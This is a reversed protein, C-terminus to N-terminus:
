VGHPPVGEAQRRFVGGELVFDVRGWPGVVVDRVHAGLELPHPETIIPCPFQGGAVRCVIAPFLQDKDLHILPPQDVAFLGQDVPARLALGDQGVLLHLRPGAPAAVALHFFPLEGSPEELDRGVGILEQLVAVLERAPGLANDRHLLVPDALTDPGIHYKGQFVACTGDGDERRALVGEEPRGKHDQCGLVGQHQLEALPFFLLGGYAGKHLPDLLLVHDGARGLVQFLLPDEYANRADVGQGFLRYRDVGSIEDEHLVAGAGDHRHGRVVLPVELKGFLVADRQDDDDLGRAM